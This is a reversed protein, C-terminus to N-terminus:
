APGTPQASTAHSGKRPRYTIRDYERKCERHFRQDVRSAKLPQQCHDCRMGERAKARREGVAATARKVKCRDHFRRCPGADPGLPEKCWACPRPPKPPHSRIQKSRAIRHKLADVERRCPACRKSMSSRPTYEKECTDCVKPKFNREM